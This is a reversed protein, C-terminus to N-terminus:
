SGYSFVQLFSHDSLVPIWSFSCQGRTDWSVRSSSLVDCFLFRSYGVRGRALNVLPSGLVLYSRDSSWGEGM